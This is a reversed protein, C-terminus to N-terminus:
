ITLNNIQQRAEPKYNHFILIRRKGTSVVVLDCPEDETYKMSKEPQCSPSLHSIEVDNVSNKFISPVLRLSDCMWNWGADTTALVCTIDMKVSDCLQMAAVFTAEVGDHVACKTYLACAPEAKGTEPHQKAYVGIASGLLAVVVAVISVKNM